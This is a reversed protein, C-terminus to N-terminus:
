GLEQIERELQEKADRLNEFKFLIRKTFDGLDSEKPRDRFVFGDEDSYFAILYLVSTRNSYERVLQLVEEFLAMESLEWDESLLGKIYNECFAFDGFVKFIPSTWKIMTHALGSKKISPILDLQSSLPLASQNRHIRFAEEKDFM